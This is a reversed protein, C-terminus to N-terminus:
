EQKYYGCVSNDTICLSNDHLLCKGNYFHLCDDLFESDMSMNFGIIQLWLDTAESKPKKLIYRETADLQEKNMKSVIKQIYKITEEISDLKEKKILKGSVEKIKKEKGFM